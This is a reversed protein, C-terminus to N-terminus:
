DAERRARPLWYDRWTRMWALAPISLLLLVWALLALVPRGDIVAGAARAISVAGIAAGGLSMLALTVADDAREVLTVIDPAQRATWVLIAAVTVNVAPSVLLIGSIVLSFTAPDPVSAFYLIPLLAVQLALRIGKSM